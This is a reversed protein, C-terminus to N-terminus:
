QQWRNFPLHLYVFIEALITIKNMCEHIHDARLYTIYVYLFTSVCKHKFDNKRLM